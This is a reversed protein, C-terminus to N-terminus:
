DEGNRCDVRRRVQGTLRQDMERLIRLDALGQSSLNHVSQKMPPLLRRQVVHLQQIANDPLTLPELWDQITLLSCCYREM